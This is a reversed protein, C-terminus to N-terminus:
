AAASDRTKGSVLEIQYKVYAVLARWTLRTLWVSFLLGLAGAALLGLGVVLASMGISLGPLAEIQIHDMGDKLAIKHDTIELASDGDKVAFSNKGASAELKVEATSSSANMRVLRREGDVKATFVDGSSEKLTLAQIAGGNIRVEGDAIQALQRTTPQSADVTLKDHKKSILLTDGQVTQLEIRDGEDPELKLLGDDIRVQGAHDEMDSRWAMQAGHDGHSGIYWGSGDDSLQPWGFLGHSGWALVVVLGSFLFSVSVIYGVSLFILYIMFPLALIFNLVGLGAISAIVRSLNSFSRHEQWQKYHTQARLERALKQPSGLAAVVEAEDRGDALADNFYEEYDALIERVTEPRLGSLGQELQSLFAKRTM